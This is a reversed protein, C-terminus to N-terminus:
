INAIDPMKANAKAVVISHLYIDFKHDEVFTELNEESVIPLDHYLQYLQYEENKM